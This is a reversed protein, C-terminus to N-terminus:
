NLLQHQDTYLPVGSGCVVVDPDIDPQAMSNVFVQVRCIRYTSFDYQVLAM